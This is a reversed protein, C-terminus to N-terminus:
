ALLGLDVFDAQARGAALAKAIVTTVIQGSGAAAVLRAAEVVPAGFVDDAEFTVEGVSLGVRIALSAEATRAQRETAQQMAVACGIADVVSSFTAMVGDGTNKIEEGGVREIAHALAAFHARRLEDFATAGLRTMLETSGVVDTFLVAVM